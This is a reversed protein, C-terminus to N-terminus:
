RVGVTQQVGVAQRDAAAPHVIPKRVGPSWTSVVEVNEPVPALSDRTVQVAAVSDQGDVDTCPCQPEVADSEQGAIHGVRGAGGEFVGGAGEDTGRANDGGALPESDTREDDTGDARYGAQATALLQRGGPLRMPGVAKAEM